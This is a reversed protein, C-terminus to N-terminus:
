KVSFVLITDKGDIGEIKNHEKIQLAYKGITFCM